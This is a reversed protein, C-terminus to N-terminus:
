LVHVIPPSTWETYPIAKSTSRPLALLTDLAMYRRDIPKSPHKILRSLQKWRWEFQLAAQWTPFGSVYRNIRWVEGKNVRKKTQIAGGTIECNHQRLRHYVNITAGIYTSGTKNSELCYVFFEKLSVKEKEKLSMPIPVVDDPMFEIDVANHDVDICEHDANTELVDDTPKYLIDHSQIVSTNSTENNHLM